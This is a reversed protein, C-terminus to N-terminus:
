VTVIPTAIFSTLNNSLHSARILYVVMNKEKMCSALPTQIILISFSHQNYKNIYIRM